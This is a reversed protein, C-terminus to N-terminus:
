PTEDGHPGNSNLSAILLDNLRAIDAPKVLHQDFGAQKARHFDKEGGYGSLAVLLTDAFGPMVRLRRAVEYGDM